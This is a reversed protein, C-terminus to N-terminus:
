PQTLILILILSLTLTRTLLDDGVPGGVLEAVTDRLWTLDVGARADDPPSAVVHGRRRLLERLQAPSLMGWAVRIQNPNPNPNPDPDPDPDPDPNSCAGRSACRWSASWAWRSRASRWPM